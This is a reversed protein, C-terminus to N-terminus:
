KRANRPEGDTPPPLMDPKAPYNSVYRILITHMQGAPAIPVPAAQPGLYQAAWSSDPPSTLLTCVPEITYALQSVRRYPYQFQGKRCQLQPKPTANPADAYPLSLRIRPCTAKVNAIRAAISSPCHGIAPAYINTRNRVKKQYANLRTRAFLAKVAM